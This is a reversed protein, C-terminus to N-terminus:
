KILIKESENGYHNVISVAIKTYNIHEIKFSCKGNLLPLIKYNWKNNKKLYVVCLNDKRDGEVSLKDEKLEATPHKPKNSNLWVSSPILAQKSYPGKDNTLAECINDYDTLFAKMSFFVNGPGNEIMGRTVMIQNIMEKSGGPKQVERTLYLGPWLHRSKTNQKNWWNLLVPYSQPIKSIPWYLQPTFYDIWGENLWLKADAYLKDYQDFGEISKPHGPRWIGFPSIGFKVYPKAKKIEKYLHQILKNVSNRRWDNRSLKGGSTKYKKWSTDDPFDKGNNYDWYPYFYDDFHVGDINYRNVVDMIVSTTWNQTEKLAPDMWYYGKDGLKVVLDPHTKIISNEASESKMAPHKARYPNFWAHLELGRKHAETTWFELPDYYPNPVKGEKGTLYYSWPEIKSNYLADAHPRVQFIVANLNLSKAKDLIATAEKKQQVTSLGPKSPWDINDVTAVWVARFERNPKPLVKNFKSEISNSKCGLLIFISLLAAALPFLKAKLCTYM